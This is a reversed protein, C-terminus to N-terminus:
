PVDVRLLLYRGPCDAGLDTILLDSVCPGCRLLKDGQGCITVQIDEVFSLARTSGRLDNIYTRMGCLWRKTNNTRM